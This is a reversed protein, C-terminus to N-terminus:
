VVAIDYPFINKATLQFIEQPTTLLNLYMPYKYISNSKRM